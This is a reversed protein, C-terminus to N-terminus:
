YGRNIQLPPLIFGGFVIFLIVLILVVISMAKAQEPPLGLTGVIQNVLWLIFCGLVVRVLVDLVNM